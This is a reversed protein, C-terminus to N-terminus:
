WKRDQDSRRARGPDKYLDNVKVTLPSALPKGATESRWLRVPTNTLPREQDPYRRPFVREFCLNKASQRLDCGLKM